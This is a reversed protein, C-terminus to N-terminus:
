RVTVPQPVAPSSVVVSTGQIVADVAHFQKDAGALAFELLKGQPDELAPSLGDKRGVMLGSGIQDFAVTVKGDKIACERYAPAQYEIKLGYTKALAIAALRRGTDYKNRPHLEEDGIDITVAMGTHPISLCKVQIKRMLPWGKATAEPLGGAGGMNPLQVFYFPMEPENWAKRWGNILVLM